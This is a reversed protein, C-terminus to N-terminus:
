TMNKRYIPALSLQDTFNNGILQLLIGDNLQLYNYLCIESQKKTENNDLLMIIIVKFEAIM